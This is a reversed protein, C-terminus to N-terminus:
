KHLERIIDLVLIITNIVAAIIKLIIYIWM